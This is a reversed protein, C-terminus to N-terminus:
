AAVPYGRRRNEEMEIWRCNRKTYHYKSNKRDISPQKMEWARDRVYLNKLEEITIRCEIGRGGYSAYKRDNKNECRYKINNYTTAWPLKEKGSAKRAMLFDAMEGYREVMVERRREDTWGFGM